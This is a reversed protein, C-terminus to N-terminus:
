ENIIARLQLRTQRRLDSVKEEKDIEESQLEELSEKTDLQDENMLMNMLEDDQPLPLLDRLDDGYELDQDDFPGGTSSNDDISKRADADLQKIGLRESNLVITKDASIKHANEEDSFLELAAAATSATTAPADKSQDMLLKGFFAERMYEPFTDQLQSKQKKTIRRKRRPKNQGSLDNDLDDPALELEADEKSMRARQKVQFGGIGLKDLRRQRKKKENADNSEIADVSAEDDQLHKAFM